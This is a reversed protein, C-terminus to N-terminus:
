CVPPQDDPHFLFHYRFSLLNRSNIGANPKKLVEAKLLFVLRANLQERVLRNFKEHISKDPTVKQFPIKLTVSTPPTCVFSVSLRTDQPKSERSEIGILKKGQHYHDFLWACGLIVLFLSLRIILKRYKNKGAKL